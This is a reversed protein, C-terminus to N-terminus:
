MQCWKEQEEFGWFVNCTVKKGRGVGVGLGCFGYDGKIDM